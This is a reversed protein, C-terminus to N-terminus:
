ECDVSCFCPVIIYTTGDLAEEVDRPILVDLERTRKLQKRAKRIAPAAIMDLQLWIQEADFGDVYIAEESQKRRVSPESSSSPIRAENWYQLLLATASRAMNAVEPSARVLVGADRHIEEQLRDITSTSIGVDAFADLSTPDLETSSVNRQDEQQTGVAEAAQVGTSDTIISYRCNAINITMVRQM